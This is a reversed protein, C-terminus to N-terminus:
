DVDVVDGEVPRPPNAFGNINIALNATEDVDDLGLTRRAVRDMLEFDHASRILNRDSAKADAIQKQTIDLVSSQHQLQQSAVRQALAKVPDDQQAGLEASNAEKILEAARKRLNYPTAWQKDHSRKRIAGSTLKFDDYEEAIDEASHGACYLAEVEEWPVNAYKNQQRLGQKRREALSKARPHDEDM